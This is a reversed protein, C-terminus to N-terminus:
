SHQRRNRARKTKGREFPVLFEDRKGPLTRSKQLRSLPGLLPLCLSHPCTQGDNSSLFFRDLTRESRLVALSSLFSVSRHTSFFPGNAQLKEESTRMENSSSSPNYERFSQVVKEKGGGGNRDFQQTMKNIKGLICSAKTTKMQAPTAM